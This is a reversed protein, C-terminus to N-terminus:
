RQRRWRHLVDPIRHVVTSLSSLSVVAINKLFGCILIQRIEWNLILNSVSPSFRQIVVQCSFDTRNKKKQRWFSIWCVTYSTYQISYQENSRISKQLLDIKTSCESFSGLPLLLKVTFWNSSLHLSEKSSRWPSAPFYIQPPHEPQLLEQALLWILYGILCKWTESHSSLSNSM